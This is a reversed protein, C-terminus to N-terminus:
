SVFIFLRIKLLFGLLLVQHFTILINEFKKINEISKNENREHLMEEDTDYEIAEFIKNNIETRWVYSCTFDCKDLLLTIMIDALKSTTLQCPLCVILKIRTLDNVEDVLKLFKKTEINTVDNLLCIEVSKSLDM